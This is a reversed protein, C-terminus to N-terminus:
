GLQKIGKLVLRAEVGVVSFAIVAAAFLADSLGLRLASSIDLSGIFLEGRDLLLELSADGLSLLFHLGSLVSSRGQLLSSAVGIRFDALNLALEFGHHCIGVLFESLNSQM